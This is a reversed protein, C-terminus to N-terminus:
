FLLYLHFILFSLFICIIFLKIYGVLALRPSSNSESEGLTMLTLDQSHRFHNIVM